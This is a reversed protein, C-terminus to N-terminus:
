SGKQEAIENLKTKHHRKGVKPRSFGDGPRRFFRKSHKRSIFVVVAIIVVEVAYVAMWWPTSLYALIGSFVLHTLCACITALMGRNERKEDTVSIPVMLLMTIGLLLEMQVVSGEACVLGCVICNAGSFLYAMGIIITKERLHPTNRSSVFFDNKGHKKKYKM